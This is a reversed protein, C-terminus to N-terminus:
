WLVCFLYRTKEVNCEWTLTTKSTQRESKQSYQFYRHLYMRLPKLSLIPPFWLEHLYRSILMCITVAPLAISFILKSIFPELEPM